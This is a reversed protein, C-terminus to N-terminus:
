VNGTSVGSNFQSLEPNVMVIYSNSRVISVSHDVTSPVGVRKRTEKISCVSGQRKERMCIEYSLVGLIDRRVVCHVKQRIIATGVVVKAM